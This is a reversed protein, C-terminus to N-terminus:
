GRSEQCLFRYVVHSSCSVADGSHDVKKEDNKGGKPTWIFSM